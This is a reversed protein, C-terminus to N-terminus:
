HVDDLSPHIQRRDLVKTDNRLLTTSHYTVSEESSIYDWRTTAEPADFVFERRITRLPAPRSSIMWTSPRSPTSRMHDSGVLLHTRPRDPQRLADCKNSEVEINVLRSRKAGSTVSTSM